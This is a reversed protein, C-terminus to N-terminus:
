GAQRGMLIADVGGYYGRRRGTEAFGLREYLARAKLNNEAVELFISDAGAAKTRDLFEGLLTRGIGKGQRDPEVAITLLEAEGAVVRGLAFGGEASIAFCLPSSLFAAFEAESWPRPVSFVRAHLAAM